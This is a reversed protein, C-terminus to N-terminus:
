RNGEPKAPVTRLYAWLAQTEVETLRAFNPWPMFPDLSRGDPTQGFRVARDFDDYSWDALGTQPDPTLNLAPPFEPPTGPVQGGSFGNGHCGTCVLSLKAGFAVTPGVPVAAPIPATHDILEVPLLPAQGLLFLVRLLPGPVTKPPTHDVPPAATIFAVLQGLEEASFYPSYEHAPMFVLPRGQRNVGHRIARVIDERGWDASRGGAGRTLNAGAMVGVPFADIVTVGALNGGHCDACGRSVYLREGEALADADDPVDVSQVQVQYIRGMRWATYGQVFATVLLLLIALAGVGLGVWKLVNNM